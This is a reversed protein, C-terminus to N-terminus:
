SAGGPEVLDNGKLADLIEAKELESRWAVKLEDGNKFRLTVGDPLITANEVQRRDIVSSALRIIYDPQM